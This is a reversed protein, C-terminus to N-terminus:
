LYTLWQILSGSAALMVEHYSIVDEVVKKGFVAVNQPNPSCCLFHPFRLTRQFICKSLLCRMHMLSCELNHIGEGCEPPCGRRRWNPRKPGRSPRRQSSLIVKRQWCLHSCVAPASGPQCGQSRGAGWPLWHWATEGAWWAGARGRGSAPGRPKGQWRGPRGQKGTKRLLHTSRSLLIQTSPLPLPSFNFAPDIKKKLPLKRGGGMSLHEHM